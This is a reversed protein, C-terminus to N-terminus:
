GLHIKLHNPMLEGEQLNRQFPVPKLRNPNKFINTIIYKARDTTYFAFFIAPRYLMSLNPYTHPSNGSPIAMILMPPQLFIQFIESHLDDSTQILYITKRYQM